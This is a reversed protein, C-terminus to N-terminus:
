QREPEEHLLDFDGNAVIDILEAKTSYGVKKRMNKVYFEVTRISLGFVQATERVTMGQMFKVLCEAERKSFKIKPHKNSLKFRVSKRRNLSKKDVAAM